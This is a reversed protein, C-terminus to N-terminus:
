EEGVFDRQADTLGVVEDLVTDELNADELGRVGTLNAGTLDAYSLNCGALNCRSLDAGRLNTWVFSVGSLDQGAFNAGSLNAEDFTTPQLDPTGGPGYIDDDSVPDWWGLTAERFDVHSLDGELEMGRLDLGTASGGPQVNFPREWPPLVEDETDLETDDSIDAM